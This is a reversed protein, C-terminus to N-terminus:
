PVYSGWDGIPLTFQFTTGGEENPTAWLRGRHAEVIRHSIALGLGMGDPKTTFFADFLRDAAGPALGEGTDSVVVEITPKATNARQTHVTLKRKGAETLEMADIANRVLNVMVQEIQTKNIEVEPLQKDLELCVDIRQDSTDHKSLELVDCVLSNINVQSREVETRKVFQRLRTVIDGARQAQGAIEQLSDRLVDMNKVGSKLMLSCAEAYSGIAALPQNIEHALGSAMEGMSAVRSAHALENLREKAEKEARKRDTVDRVAAPFLRKGSLQVEGVAIDMPFTSGDKRRGAVERGIGIIRKEGTARYHRLYDDHGERYPSPMLMNVNNGIVESASFGFIREAAQNLSEVMGREDITIIGDVATDLIARIKAASEVLHHIIPNSVRIFLLTGMAVVFITVVGTVLGARIFPARVETLDIKVVIGLQIMTVPEY